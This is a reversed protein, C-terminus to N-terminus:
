YNQEYKKRERSDATRASIIRITEVSDILVTHAIVLLLHGDVMGITQWRKEGNEIRDQETYAMPDAFARLATEFSVKHKALNSKAKANDWEFQTM